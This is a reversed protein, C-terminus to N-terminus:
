KAPILTFTNFAKGGELLTGNEDRRAGWAVLQYACGPALHIWYRYTFAQKGVTAHYILRVGPVGNITEEAEEVLKVEQAASVLNAKVVDVLSELDLESDEGVKEAIIMFYVQPRSRLYGAAAEPNLKRSDIKIWPRPPQISFGFQDFVQAPEPPGERSAMAARMEASQMFGKMFGFGVAGAFIVVILCCLVLATIAPGKGERYLGRGRKIESLGLISLLISVLVSGGFALLAILAIITGDKQSRSLAAAGGYLLWSGLLVILALHAKRNATPRSMRRSTVLLGAIMGGLILLGICGGILAGTSLERSEVHSLLTPVMLKM